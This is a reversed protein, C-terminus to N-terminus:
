SEVECDFYLQLHCDLCLAMPGERGCLQSWTWDPSRFRIWQVKKGCLPCFMEDLLPETKNDLCAQVDEWPFTEKNELVAKKYANSLLALALVRDGGGLFCEAMRAREFISPRRDESPTANSEGFEIVFDVEKM